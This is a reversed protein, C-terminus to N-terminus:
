EKEQEKGRKREKEERERERYVTYMTVEFSRKTRLAEALENM